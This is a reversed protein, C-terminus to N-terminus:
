SLHPKVNLVSRDGCRELALNLAAKVRELYGESDQPLLDVKNGVVVVPRSRGVLQALGPWVSCPFDLLDVVLVLLASKNEMQRMMLSYDDPRVSVNIAANHFRLFYCRQCILDRLEAEPAARLVESPLYGPWSPEQCHLHAGCGGCVVQSAPVSPDPHGYRLVWLDQDDTDADAAQERVAQERLLQLRERVTQQLQTDDPTDHEDQQEGPETFEVLSAAAFPFMSSETSELPAEAALSNHSSHISDTGLASFFACTPMAPAHEGDVATQQAKLRARQLERGESKSLRILM